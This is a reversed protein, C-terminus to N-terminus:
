LNASTKGVYLDIGQRFPDTKSQKIRICLVNPVRPHDIAINNATLHSSADFSGDSPITFEGVRM